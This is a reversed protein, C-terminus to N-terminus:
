RRLQTPVRVSNVGIQISHDNPHVCFFVVGLKVSGLLQPYFTIGIWFKQELLAFCFCANDNSSAVSFRSYGCHNQMYQVVMILRNIVHYAGLQFPKIMHNMQGFGIIKNEHFAIFVKGRGQVKGRLKQPVLGM